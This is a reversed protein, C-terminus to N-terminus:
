REMFAVIIMVVAAFILLGMEMADLGGIVSKITKM